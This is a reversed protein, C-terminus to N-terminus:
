SVKIVDIWIDQTTPAANGFLEISPLATSNFYGWVGLSGDRFRLSPKNAQSTRAIVGPRPGGAPFVLRAAILNAGVVDMGVVAYQGYPITQDLTFTGLGWVKNGLTISATAHLTIINNQPLNRVDQDQLVLFAYKQIAGGANDSQLIALEDTAGLKFYPPFCWDIAPISTPATGVDFPVPSPLAIARLKPQSIQEMTINPSLSYVARVLMDQPLLYHSSGNLTAWTDQVGPVDELSVGGASAKTYALLHLM